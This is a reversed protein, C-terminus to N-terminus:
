KNRSWRSIQKAAASNGTAIQAAYIHVVPLDNFKVIGLRDPRATIGRRAHCARLACYDRSARVLGMNRGAM